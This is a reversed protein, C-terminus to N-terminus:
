ERRAMQVCLRVQGVAHKLLKIKVERKYPPLVQTILSYLFQHHPTLNHFKYHVANQRGLFILVPKWLYINLCCTYNNEELFQGFAALEM